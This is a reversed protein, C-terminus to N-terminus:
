EQFGQWYLTESIKEQFGQQQQTESCANLM